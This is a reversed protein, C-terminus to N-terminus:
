RGQMLCALSCRENVGGKAEGDRVAWVRGISEICYSLRGVANSGGLAEAMTSLRSLRAGFFGASNMAHLTATTSEHPAHIPVTRRARKFLASFPSYATFNLLHDTFIANIAQHQRLCAVPLNATRIDPNPASPAHQTSADVNRWLLHLRLRALSEMGTRRHISDVDENRFSPRSNSL